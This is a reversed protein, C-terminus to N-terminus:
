RSGTGTDIRRETELIGIVRFPINKIRLVKGIPDESAFLENQITKGIVCVKATARSDADTFFQGSELNWSRILPWDVEAGQISTSWNKNNYVVQAVSRVQASVYACSSCEQRIAVVDGESLKSNTGWGSRAGSSTTTGPFIM